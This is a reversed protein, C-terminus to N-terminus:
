PVTNRGFRYAINVSACSPIRVGVLESVPNAPVLANSGLGVKGPGYVGTIAFNETTQGTWDSAIMMNVGVNLSGKLFARAVM